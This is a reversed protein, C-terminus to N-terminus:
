STQELLRKRELLEERGILGEEPIGKAMEEHVQATWREHDPDSSIRARHVYLQAWGLWRENQRMLTSLAHETQHSVASLAREIQELLRAM